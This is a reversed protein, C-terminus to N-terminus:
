VAAEGAMAGVGLIPLGIEAEVQTGLRHCVERTPSHGDRRALRRGAGKQGSHGAVIGIRDHRRGMDALRDRGRLCLDKGAPDGFPRLIPAVPRKFLNVPWCQRRDLILCPWLCRDISKNQRPELLLPQRWARLSIPDRESPTHAEIEGAQGGRWGLHFCENGIARGLGIFSIDIGLQGARVKTLPHRHVPEIRRAVGVAVPKLGIGAAVVPRPAVPHNGGVVAVQREILEGERLQGAIQEGIGRGILDHGGAEIAVVPEIALPPQDVLFPANFRHDVPHLRGALGPQPQGHAAGPAVVM